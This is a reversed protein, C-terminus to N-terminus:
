ANPTYAFQHSLSHEFRWGAPVALAHRALAAQADAPTGDAERFWCLSVWHAQGDCDARGFGLWRCATTLGHQQDAVALDVAAGDEDLFVLGAAQLADTFRATEEPSLFGIRFLREDVCLTRNPVLALFGAEGGRLRRAVADKRVIVSLAEALVAM